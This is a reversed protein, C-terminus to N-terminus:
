WHSISACERGGTTRARKLSQSLSNLHSVAFRASTSQHLQKLFSFFFFHPLCFLSYAGKELEQSLEPQREESKMWQRRKRECWVAPQSQVDTEVWVAGSIEDRECFQTRCGRTLPDFTESRASAVTPKSLSPRHVFSDFSYFDLFPRKVIVGDTALSLLSSHQKSFCKDGRVM